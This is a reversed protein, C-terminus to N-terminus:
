KGGCGTSMFVFSVFVSARTFMGAISFLGQVVAALSKFKHKGLVTLVFRETAANVVPKAM